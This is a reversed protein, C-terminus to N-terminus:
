VGRGAAVGRRLLYGFGRVTVIEVDHGALKQRIRHIYVEVTKDGVDENLEALADTLQAKTVVRDVNRMLRRLVQLERPTLPLPAGALTIRAEDPLLRLRGVLLGGGDMPGARRLVARIRADLEAMDFPKVIYDDAGALLGDIRDRRDDRATLVIVPTPDGGARLQALVRSGDIDPLGMDLLVLGPPRARVSALAHAGTRAEAVRYGLRSLEGNLLGALCPDDEVVLIREEVRDSYHLLTRRWPRSEAAQRWGGPVGAAAGRRAAGIRGGHREGAQRLPPGCRRM